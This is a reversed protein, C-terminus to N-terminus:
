GPLSARRLQRHSRHHLLPSRSAATPWSRTAACWKWRTFEAAGLALSENPSITDRAFGFRTLGDIYTDLGIARMLRVSMVNKSKALGLRLSTPGEYIAPSNQAAM